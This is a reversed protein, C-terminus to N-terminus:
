DAKKEFYILDIFLAAALVLFRDASSLGTGTLEIRFRDKDTFAETLFGGWRKQVLAVQEGAKEIAFTWIRWLPSSVEFRPAGNAGEIDFRKSLIAFRQQIAGLFEGGATTVELRQFLFRFPHHVRLLLQRADDYVLIDFSRWHGLWQRFLFGFIGKQQEAAFGVSEGAETQIAYKNRTEFGFLEALERKQAVYFIRGRELERGLSM